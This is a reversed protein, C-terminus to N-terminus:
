GEAAKAEEPEPQETKAIWDEGVLSWFEGPTMEDKWREFDPHDTLERITATGDDLFGTLRVEEPHLADLLYPSHSTALIQVGTEETIRRLQSVLEVLARPHLSHELEDILVLSSQNIPRRALADTPSMAEMKLSTLLGLTLITGDSVQAPPLGSANDFSFELQDGYRGGVSMSGDSTEVPNGYGIRRRRFSVGQFGPVVNRTARLIEDLIPSDNLKLYALATPLGEGSPSMFPRPADVASAARLHSPRLKLLIVKTGVPSTMFNLEESCSWGSSRLQFEFGGEAEFGRIWDEVLVRAFKSGRRIKEEVESDDDVMGNLHHSQIARQIWFLSQLATTKGSANPGVIVTFAGLRLEAERFPGYNQFRIREIM